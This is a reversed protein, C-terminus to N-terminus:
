LTSRLIVWLGGGSDVRLDMRDDAEVRGWLM